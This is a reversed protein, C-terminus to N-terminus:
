ARDVECWVNVAIGLMQHGQATPYLRPQDMEAVPDLAFDLSGDVITAVTEALKETVSETADNTSLGGLCVVVLNVRKKGVAQARQRYPSGAAVWCIPPTFTQPIVTVARVADGANLLEALDNRKSELKSTM